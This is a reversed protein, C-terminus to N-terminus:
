LEGLQESMEVAREKAALLAKSVLAVFGGQEFTDIAKETTGGPSTVRKRLQEPSDDSELAIKAAGLATQQILLRATQQSLGLEQAAKEMSEMLLFYYAPGSGSVATVADLEAEKKVWLSIGVARLINEALDKQEDSVSANAHLATAGTLVLAPTNPMCRVIAVEDGIWEKLSRQNIGAAISVVLSKKHQLPKAITKTVERLVQPKVALVVVDVEKIVAENSNSINVKLISALNQLTQLNVDSVWIQQPSHGSAILGKMLSSAMNGGGIFGINKTKM